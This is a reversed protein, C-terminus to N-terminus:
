GKARRITPCAKSPRRTPPAAPAINNPKPKSLFKVNNEKGDPHNNKRGKDPRRHSASAPGDKAAPEGRDEKEGHEVPIGGMVPGHNVKDEALSAAASRM